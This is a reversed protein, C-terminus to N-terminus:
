RKIMKRHLGAHEIDFFESVCVYGMREYFPIARIRADCWIPLPGTLALAAREAVPVLASGIGTGRLGDDTAMGRLRWAPEGEWDARLMTVCCVANGDADFAGLHLTDPADDGPFRAMDVPLGARLIRHRLPVIEDVPCTRLTYPGFPENM